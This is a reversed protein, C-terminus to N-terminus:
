VLGSSLMNEYIITVVKEVRVKTVYGILGVFNGSKINICDRIHIAPTLANITKGITDHRSLCFFHIQKSSVKDGLSILKEQPFWLEVLGSIYLGNWFIWLENYAGFKSSDRRM